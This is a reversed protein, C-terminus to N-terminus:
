RTKTPKDHGKPTKEPPKGNTKTSPAPASSTVATSTSAASSSSSTTPSAPAPQLAALDALVAAAAQEITAARTADLRGAQREAAVDTRLRGVASTAGALDKAAAANSVALVDRQLLNPTASSSCGGLVPGLVAAVALAVGAYRVRSM